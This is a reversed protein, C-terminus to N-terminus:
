ESYRIVDRSFMLVKCQKLITHAVNMDRSRPITSITRLHASEETSSVEVLLSGIRQTSISPERGCINILSRHVDFIDLDTISLKDLSKIELFKKYFAPELTDPLTEILPCSSDKQKPFCRHNKSKGFSKDYNLGGARLSLSRLGPLM